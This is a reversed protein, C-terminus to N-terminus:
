LLPDLSLFRPGSALWGIELDTDHYNSTIVYYNRNQQRFDLEFGASSKYLSIELVRDRVTFVSKAVKTQPAYSCRPWFQHKYM